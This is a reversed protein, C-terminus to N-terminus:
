VTSPCFSCAAPVWLFISLKSSCSVRESVWPFTDALNLRFSSFQGCYHFCDKQLFYFLCARKYAIILNNSDITNLISTHTVERVSSLHYIYRYYSNPFFACHVSAHTNIEQFARTCTRISTNLDHSVSTM